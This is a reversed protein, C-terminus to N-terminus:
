NSVIHQEDFKIFIWTAYSAKQSGAELNFYFAIAGDKYPRSPDDTETTTHMHIDHIGTGDSYTTGYAAIKDCSQALGAVRNYLDDNEITQFDADTLGMFDPGSGAAYSLEVDTSFGDAPVDSPAVNEMREVYLVETQDDSRINVACEFVGEHPPQAIKMDLYIHSGTDEEARRPTLSASQFEGVLRGYTDKPLTSGVSSRKESFKRSM